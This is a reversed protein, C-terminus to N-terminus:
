NYEDGRLIHTRDTCEQLRQALESDDPMALESDGRKLRLRRCSFVGDLTSELEVCSTCFARPCFHCLHWSSNLGKRPQVCVSCIEDYGMSIDWAEYTEAEIDSVAEEISASPLVEKEHMHSESMSRKSSDDLRRRKRAPAEDRAIRESNVPAEYSEKYEECEDDADGNYQEQNRDIVDFTPRTYIRGNSRKDHPWVAVPVQYATELFSFKDGPDVEATDQVLTTGAIDCKGVTRFWRCMLVIKSKGGPQLDHKFIRVITGYVTKLVRQVSSVRGRHKVIKKLHYDLRIRSNDNKTKASYAETSFNYGAYQARDYVEIRHNVSQEGGPCVTQWLTNLEYLEADTLSEGKGKGLIRTVRDTKDESGPRLQLGAANSRLPPRSRISKDDAMFTNVLEAIEARHRVGELVHLTSHAALRRFVTHFRENDMMNNVPYPGLAELSKVVSCQYVHLVSTNWVMPLCMELKTLVRPLNTKVHQRDGPTSVKRMVRELLRLLEIMMLLVDGRVGLTRLVYCGADGALLLWESCKVFGAHEKYRRVPPWDRPVRCFSELADLRQKGASDAQWDPIPWKEGDPKCYRKMSPRAIAEEDRMQPPFKSKGNSGSNTTWQFIHKVINANEHTLDYIIQQTMDWYLLKRSFVDRTHYAFERRWTSIVSKSSGSVLHQVFADHRQNGEATSTAHKRASPWTEDSLSYLLTKKFERKHEARLNDGKKLGRVAGPMINRRAVWIGGVTCANCGGVKCPPGSGGTFAPIGRIDSTASALLLWAEETTGKRELKVPTSGPQHAAFIDAIPSLMEGYDIVKPPLYGLLVITGNLRRLEPPWNLLKATVPTYSKSDKVEVGDACLAFYLFKDKNETDPGTYDHYLREMVEGDWVDTLERDAIKVQPRPRAKGFNLEDFLYDSGFISKLKAEIDLYFAQSKPKGSTDFRETTVGHESCRQCTKMDKCVPYCWGCQSCFDRPVFNAAGVYGRARKEALYMSKPPYLGAEHLTEGYSVEFAKLVGDAARLNLGHQSVNECVRLAFLTDTDPGSKSEEDIVGDGDVHAQPTAASAIPENDNSIVPRDRRHRYYTSNPVPAGKCEICFCPKVM